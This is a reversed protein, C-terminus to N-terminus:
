LRWEQGWSRRRVAAAEGGPGAGIVILDYLEAPEPFERQGLNPPESSKAKASLALSRSYLGLSNAGKFASTMTAAIALLLLILMM